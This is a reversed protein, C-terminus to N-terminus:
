PIIMVPSVGKIKPSLTRAAALRSQRKLSWFGNPRVYINIAEVQIVSGSLVGKVFPHVKSFQTNLNEGAQVDIPNAIERCQYFRHRGIRM